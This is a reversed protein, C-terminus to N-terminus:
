PAWHRSLQEPQVARLCPAFNSCGHPEIYSQEPKQRRQRTGDGSNV